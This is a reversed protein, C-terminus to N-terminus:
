SGHMFELTNGLVMCVATNYLGIVVLENDQIAQTDQSM